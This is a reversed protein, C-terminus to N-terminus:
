YGSRWSPKSPKFYPDSTPPKQELRQLPSSQYSEAPESTPPTSNEPVLVPAFSGGPSQHTGEFQQFPLSQPSQSQQREKYQRLAEERQKQIAELQTRREEELKNQREEQARAEEQKAIVFEQYDNFKEFTWWAAMGTLLLVAIPPMFINPEKKEPIGTVGLARKIDATLEDQVENCKFRNGPSDINWKLRVSTKLTATNVGISALAESEPKQESEPLDDFVINLMMMRQLQQAPRGLMNYVETFNLIASIRREDQDATRVNWFFPGVNRERLLKLATGFAEELALPVLFAEPNDKQKELWLDCGRLVYAACIALSIGLGTVSWRDHVYPYLFHHVLAIIAIGLPPGLSAAIM